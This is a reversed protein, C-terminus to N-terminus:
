HSINLTAELKGLAYTLTAECVIHCSSLIVSCGFLLIVPHCPHLTSLSSLIVPLKASSQGYPMNIVNGSGLHVDRHQPVRTVHRVQWDLWDGVVGEQQVIHDSMISVISIISLISLEEIDVSMTLSICINSLSSNVFNAARRSSRTWLPRAPRPMMIM